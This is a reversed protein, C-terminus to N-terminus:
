CLEIWADLDLKKLVTSFGAPAACSKKKQSASIKDGAGPPYEIHFVPKGAAIFPSFSPCETWEICSENVLFDMIPLMTPVIEAANKLGISMGRSHAEGALFTLYDVADEPTLNLGNENNYADVNDPDIADCGKSKALAIRATMIKRVNASNTDLWSEGEWDEMAAGLDAAQFSGKDSRWDEYTGASFYCIVKRNLSHLKTITSAPNDFMDFDFIEANYSTDSVVNILEIQWTAGVAPKWYDVRASIDQTPSSSEVLLETPQPAGPTTVNWGTHHHKGGHHGKFPHRGTTAAASVQGFVAGAALLINLTSLM